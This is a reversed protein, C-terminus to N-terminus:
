TVPECSIVGSAVPSGVVHEANNARPDFDVNAAEITVAQPEDAGEYAIASEGAGDPSFLFDGM